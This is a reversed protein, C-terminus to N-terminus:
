LEIVEKSCSVFFSNHTHREVRVYGSGHSPDSYYTSIIKLIKFNKLLREIHAKTFTRIYVGKQLYQNEGIKKGKKCEKDETSIFELIVFGKPKLVRYFNNIVKEIERIHVLVFDCTIADFSEEKLDLKELEEQKLTVNQYKSSLDRCRKLGSDSIDVGTVDFKLEAFAILNRGDGCGADLISKVNNEKLFDIQDLFFPTALERWLSIRGGKFSAYIKSWQNRTKKAEDM